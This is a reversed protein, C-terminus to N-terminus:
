DTWPEFLKGLEAMEGSAEGASPTGFRSRFGARFGDNWHRRRADRYRCATGPWSDALEASHNSGVWHGEKFAYDDM